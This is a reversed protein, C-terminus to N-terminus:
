WRDEEQHGQQRRYKVGRMLKSRGEILLVQERRGEKPCIIKRSVEKSSM